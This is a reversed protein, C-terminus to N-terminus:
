RDGNGSFTSPLPLDKRATVHLITVRTISDFIGPEDNSPAGIELFRKGVMVLDPHYIDFAQGTSTTIRVPVFPTTRIRDRIDTAIFM